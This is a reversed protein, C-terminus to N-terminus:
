ECIVTIEDNEIKVVGNGCDIEETETNIHGEKVLAIMPAHGPLFEMLGTASPFQLREVDGDFKM